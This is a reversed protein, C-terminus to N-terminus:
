VTDQKLQVAHDINEPTEQRLHDDCVTQISDILKVVSNRHEEWKRTTPTAQMDSTGNWFKWHGPLLTCRLAIPPASQLSRGFAWSAPAASPGIRGIWGQDYSETDLSAIWMHPDIASSINSHAGMPTHIYRFICTHLNLCLIYIELM